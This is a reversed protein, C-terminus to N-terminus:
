KEFDEQIMRKVLEAMESYLLQETHLPLNRFLPFAYKKTKELVDEYEREELMREYEAVKALAMGDNKTITYIKSCIRLIDFLGNVMDSLDLIIYEYIGMQRISHFFNVWDQGTIYMLDEGMAAPPIYELQNMNEVMNEFKWASANTKNKIFYMADTIDTQFKTHFLEQFGSIREFNLYLVKKNKALLQGLVLAFSTQLCRGVPTYIGIFKSPYNVDTFYDQGSIPGYSALVEKILTESSQYKNLIKIHKDPLEKELAEERLLGIERLLVILKIQLLQLEKDYANESVLLIDISHKKGYAQLTEWTTFVQIEFALNKRTRLFEQLKLGYPIEKDLIAIIPRNM